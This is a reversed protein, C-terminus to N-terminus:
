DKETNNIIISIEKSKIIEGSWLFAEGYIKYFGSPPIKEWRTSLKKINDNELSTILIKNNKEDLYYFSLKTIQDPNDVVTAIGLPFGTNSIIAGEQPNTILLEKLPLPNNNELKFNFEVTETKCNEVDDCVKVKLNYFGNPLFQIKKELNYPSLSSTLILNNNIYYEVRSITRKAQIEVTASLIPTNILENNNPTLIKLLPQNEMTHVNDLESPPTTTAFNQKGAWKKVASEWLIFQPDNSPNNPIPGTPNNKDIYYLICHPDNFKKEEIYEPPTSSSALLGSIKDIKIIKELVNNGDIIAKNSLKIEPKKFNEIPTDGLVKKMYNNWIPAAIIGGDAGRRMESNDNNGVWVGTVISPTYGITWADRYDNTTGSKAAVPRNNLTLWNKIGFVYARANNDSLVDNIMRAVNSDIVQKESNKFEEVVNGGADEIKLIPKITNVLGDRAFASYANVHELLKVEGGGLVLSLGFRDKDKLTTYGLKDALDLVSDIGALYM